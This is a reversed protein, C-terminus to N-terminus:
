DKKCLYYVWPESYAPLSDATLEKGTIRNFFRIGSFQFQQLIKIQYEPMIYLVDMTWDNEVGDFLLFYEKAKFKDISGNYKRINQLRKKEKLYNFPNRTMRFSYKRKLNRANHASFVFYGDRKLVRYIEKLIKNRDLYSVCDIGNFSFIVIDFEENKYQPMDRADAVEFLTNLYSFKKKCYEIMNPAYDIGVYSKCLPAIQATTRGTGIGIDLVKHDSLNPKLIDLITIEAPQLDKELKYKTVIREDNYAAQNKEM